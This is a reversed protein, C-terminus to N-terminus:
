HSGMFTGVHVFNPFLETSSLVAGDARKFSLAPWFLSATIMSLSECVLSCGMGAGGVWSDSIAYQKLLTRNAKDTDCEGDFMSTLIRCGPRLQQEENIIDQANESAAKMTPGPLPLTFNVHIKTTIVTETGHLDQAAGPEAKLAASVM